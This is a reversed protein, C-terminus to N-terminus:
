MPALAYSADRGAPALSPDTATPRHPRLGTDDLPLVGRRFVDRPLARDREGLAVTRYAVGLLRRRTGVHFVFPGM